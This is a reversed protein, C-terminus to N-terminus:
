GSQYEHKVGQSKISSLIHQARGSDLKYRSFAVNKTINEALALM